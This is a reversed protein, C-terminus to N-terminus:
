YLNLLRDIKTPLKLLFTGFNDFIFVGADQDEILLREDKEFMSQIEETIGVMNHLNEIRTIEQFDADVKVLQFNPLDFVWFGNSSFSPAIALVNEFGYQYLEIPEELYSLSNDLISVTQLDQHYVFVKLSQISNVQSIPGLSSTSQTFLTDGKSSLKVLQTDKFVIYNGLNDITAGDLMVHTHFLYNFSIDEGKLFLISVSFLLIRFM